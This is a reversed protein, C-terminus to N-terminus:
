ARTPLRALTALVYRVFQMNTTHLAANAVAGFAILRVLAFPYCFMAPYSLLYLLPLDYATVPNEAM